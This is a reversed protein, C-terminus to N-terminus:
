YLEIAYLYFICGTGSRSNAWNIKQTSEKCAKVFNMGNGSLRKDIQGIQM